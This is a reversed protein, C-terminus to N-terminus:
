EQDRHESQAGTGADPLIRKLRHQMQRRTLGLYRATKSINNGNLQLASKIIRMTFQELNFGREPLSETGLGNLMEQERVPINELNSFASSLSEVDALSAQRGRAVLCLLRVTNRLQRVNGPWSYQRLLAEGEKSVGLFCYNSEQAFQRGFAYVLPVIDGKRERLPPITIVGANIRYLLDRRFRGKAVELELDSNTATLIRSRVPLLANGGIRTFVKEELVRLLKAQLHLDMTGIEDLFVTGDQALEFIGSRGSPSAGTFAGKEYGFLEAEILQEPLASCNIAIFPKGMGHRRAIYRALMEKGTGTEGCILIPLSRDQAYLSAKELTSRMIDSFVYLPLPEESVQCSNVAPMASSPASKETRCKDNNRNLIEENCRQLVAALESIDLPKTFFDRVGYKLAKITNETNSFGTVVIIDIHHGIVQKIRRIFEIGDMRPMQIDTIIIDPAERYFVDLAEQGSYCVSTEYGLQIIFKELSSVFDKEDDILLIKM